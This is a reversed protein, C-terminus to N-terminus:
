SSPTSSSCTRLTPSSPTTQQLSALCAGAPLTTTRTTYYSSLSPPPPPIPTISPAPPVRAPLPAGSRGVCKWEEGPFAATCAANLYGPAGAGVLAFVDQVQTRFPTAKPSLPVMDMWFHSDMLVAPQLATNPLLAAARQFFFEANFLAGRAGASCGTLLLTTAAAAGLGRSKALDALVAGVYSRGMMRFGPFVPAASSGLWGDSSCYRLFVRNSDALRPELPSLLGNYSATPEWAKSSTLSSPRAACSAADYCWGGGELYVIWTNNSGSPAPSFYYGIPSGDNCTAGSSPLM